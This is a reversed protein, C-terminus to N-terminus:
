GPDELWIGTLYGDININMRAGGTRWVFPPSGDTPNCCLYLRKGYLAACREGGFRVGDIEEEGAGGTYFVVIKSMDRSYTIHADTQEGFYHYSGSGGGKLWSESGISILEAPMSLALAELNLVAACGGDVPFLEGSRLGFGPRAELVRSESPGSIMWGEACTELYWLEGGSVAAALLEGGGPATLSFDDGDVVLYRLTKGGVPLNYSFYLRGSDEYLRVPDGDSKSFVAEGNKRFAFGQGGRDLGLTWIGDRRCVLGRVYEAAPFSFAGKGDKFFETSSGHDVSVYMGESTLFHADAELSSAPADKLKYSLWKMGDRVIVFSPEPSDANEVGCVYIIPDPLPEEEPISDTGASDVASATDPNPVLFEGAQESVPRSVDRDLTDGRRLGIAGTGDSCASLFSLVIFYKFLCDEIHARTPRM